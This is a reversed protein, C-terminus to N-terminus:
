EGGKVYEKPRHGWSWEQFTLLRTFTPGEADQFSVGLLLRKIASPGLGYKEGIRAATSHGELYQHRIRAADENSLKSAPNTDGRHVSGRYGGRNDSM